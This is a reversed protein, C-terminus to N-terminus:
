LDVVAERGGGRRQYRGPTWTEHKSHDRRRWKTSQAVVIICAILFSANPPFFFANSPAAALQFPWSCGHHEDAYSGGGTLGGSEWWVAHASLRAYRMTECVFVCECECCCQCVTPVSVGRDGSGGGCRPLRRSPSSCSTTGLLLLGLSCCSFYDDDGFSYCYHAVCCFSVVDRQKNM